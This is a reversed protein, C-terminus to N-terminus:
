TLQDTRTSRDALRESLTESLPTTACIPEYGIDAVLDYREPRNVLVFVDAVGFRTRVLQAILLNRSDKPTLVIVVSSEDIGAAALVAADGPDGHYSQIAAPTPLEDVFSAAYGDEQLQRTMSVGLDGGGLVYYQPHQDSDNRSANPSRTERTSSGLGDPM